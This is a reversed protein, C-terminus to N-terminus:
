TTSTYRKRQDSGSNFTLLYWRSISALKLFRARVLENSSSRFGGILVLIGQTGVGGIYVLEGNNVSGIANPTADSLTTLKGSKSEYRYMTLLGEATTATGKVTTGKPNPGKVYGENVYKGGFSWGVEQVPDWAVNAYSQVKKIDLGSKRSVAGLKKSADITLSWINDSPIPRDNTSSSSDDEWTLPYEPTGGYLTLTGNKQPFFNGYKVKPVTNPIRYATMFGAPPKTIDDIPKTFDFVRLHSDPM